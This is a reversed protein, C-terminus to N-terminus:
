PAIKGIAYKATFWLNDEPGSTIGEPYSEAGVSYETITGSTTVRGIKGTYEDAFWLNGDAGEAIGKPRSESPLSYETVGGSTTMKGIRDGIDDTFWLNGDPGTTISEPGSHEPLSYETITGSTTVKGIRGPNDETFWLNKDPGVTIGRPYSAEPLSYETITGSTTIKGIGTGLFETFWLNGDPGAVIQEPDSGEPLPYETITGSTTIKGIGCGELDSSPSDVYTFWLNKDPGAAIWHAIHKTPLSYETITGSPTIKSIRGTYGESTLHVQEAFWLNGDPGTTISVPLGEHSLSYKTTRGVPTVENTAKSLASGEGGVNKATVKVVLTHEVDAEVPTYTSGTAGFIAACEGGTANCREWQYAYSTPSNTWMGTTTSEPVAQDPTAPSAVPLETNEPANPLTTFTDPLGEVTGKTNSAVIRFYYKTGATLGTITKSEEVNSTGSGASAEATKSGYAETTGYEFDYKTELGRPNVIGKVTAETKGISTAPKTEVTPKGTTSFVKETGYAKESESNTAVIRFYYTTSAKLGTVAKSVEVNTTGSGASAEATKTGYSKTTGYEFAYKTESGEPNVTGNLTAETETVGTASGTTVVPPISSTFVGDPTGEGTPGNYGEKTAHCLYYTAESETGCSGVGSAKGNSGESIHFLMSPKKYFAEAGLKKTASTAHAEIGSILPSAVSTGGVRIWPSLKEKYLEEYLLAYPTNYMSVNKAVAAIDNDTRKKCGADKQSSPKSEYLSCGSGSKEWVTEEWGRTNKAEKLVTGGVAIVNPSAAPWNPSEWGTEWDDYGSDGASVTIPTGLHNYDSLYESCGKKSPCAETSEDSEPYGYSNSIETAKLKVAEEVSAATNASSQTTAEVLLIKCEPCASSVMDLDLAQELSWEIELIGTETPYSAEEGKENVKKLCGNAKTCATETGKYYLKNEKRYTELDSEADKYGYADVIAVTEGSGGSTPITYASKINAADWGSGEPGGGEVLPGDNPLRYGSPTAVANPEVILNCEVIMRGGPPCLTYPKTTSPTSSVEESEV